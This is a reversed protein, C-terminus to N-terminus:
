KCSDPDIRMIRGLESQDDLGTKDGPYFQLFRTLRAAAVSCKRGDILQRIVALEAERLPPPQAAAHRVAAVYIWGGDDPKHQSILGLSATDWGSALLLGEAAPSWEAFGSFQVPTVTEKKSNELTYKLPLYTVRLQVDRQRVAFAIAGMLPSSSKLDGLDPYGDKITFPITVTLNSGGTWDLSYQGEGPNQIEQQDSTLDKGNLTWKGGAEGEAGRWIEVTTSLPKWDPKVALEPADTAKVIFDHHLTHYGPRSDQLQYSGVTLGPNLLQGTVDNEKSDVVKPKNTEGAWKVRVYVPGKVPNPQSTSGNGGRQTLWYLAAVIVVVGAAVLGWKKWDIQAAGAGSEEEKKVVPAAREAVAPPEKVKAAGSGAEAGAVSRKELRQRLSTLPESFEKDGSYESSYFRTQEFISELDKPNDSKQSLEVLRKLDQLDKARVEERLNSPLKATLASRLQVLRDKGPFTAIAGDLAAIAGRLDGDTQLERAKALAITVEEDDRSDKILACLGKALPNGPDLELAEKVLPEAGRWDTDMLVRARQLLEEVLSNRASQSNPNLQMAQRLAAFGEDAQGKNLLDRGEVLKKDANEGRMLGNEANRKLALLEPDNPFETLADAILKVARAFDNLELAQDIQAVWQARADSRKQQDRRRRVREIEADLGPYQPNTNRMIEWQSLADAFQASDELSAARQAISQVLDRRAQYRELSQRFREEGPYRDKAEELLSVKRNLNPEAAVDKEVKAIYASIEERRAEEVDFKLAQFVVNKPYQKLVEDCTGLAGQLNGDAVLRKAETYKADLMERQSRIKQYLTQYSASQEPRTSEPLRRDLELVHEIKLLAASVDGQELSSIAAKYDREKEQRIRGSEQERRNAEAVIVQARHDNPLLQLVKEAEQRALDFSRNELHQQALRLSNETQASRRKTEIEAKLTLAQTNSSEVDLVEQVKQLALLYEQEGFRKRATELLQRITKGRQSDEIEKRLRDIEPNLYSESQLERMIEDAFEFDGGDIAKRVRELRPEIKAPDFIAMFESRMAKQLYEGFERVDVFRHVPEKALAKHVVQSIGTNVARNVDSIPVPTHKQIAEELNQYGQGKFPHRHALMEYCVVAVSFQDSLPTPQKMLTQEPAMYALTGKLGTVTRHDILHAVGFDIIKVSDDDLIFVNSPKLDRHVLGHDHAAKLGRCIQVVIHISRETTLRPSSSKILSELTVGRLLPMVFYPCKGGAEEVEGIDHIEVINPHAMSALVACERKFLDLAARDQPDKLTKLTVERGMVPDFARYVVGMGGEGLVQRIEYRGATKM